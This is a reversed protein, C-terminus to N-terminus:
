PACFTGRTIRTSLSRGKELTVDYAGQKDLALLPGLLLLYVRGDKLEQWFCGVSRAGVLASGTLPVGSNQKFALRGRARWFTLTPALTKQTQSRTPKQRRLLNFNIILSRCSQRHM